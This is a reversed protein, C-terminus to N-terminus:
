LTMETVTGYFCCVDFSCTSMKCGNRNKVMLRETQEHSACKLLVGIHPTMTMVIPPWPYPLTLVRLVVRRWELSQPRGANKRSELYSFHQKPLCWGARM